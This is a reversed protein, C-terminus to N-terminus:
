SWSLSLRGGLFVALPEAEAEVGKRAKATLGEFPEVDVAITKGKREHRWVGRITGDVLLVPSFWASKRYVRPKLEAALLPPTSPPAAVVSLDFAPLLRVGRVPEAETAGTADGGLMLARIGDVDVPVLEDGLSQLM